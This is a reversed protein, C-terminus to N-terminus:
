VSGRPALTVSYGLQELRRVHHRELQAQELRDFYDPGLEQYPRKTKLVHYIIVLLSHAVAILARYVGRRRTLRRFQAGIYSTQSRANAWAIECLVAKLWANGRRTKGSLRKGGSQKNGPCVAAWSALHKASPFQRMDTGLEAVLTAAAVQKVGPITQLLQVAEEYPQLRHEIEGELQAIAAELFDMHALIQRLLVQHYAKLQGTLAQRLQPIKARMPGRALEAVVAVDQEGALLANLMERASKGLMSTAVSALKINAGELVKQLRNVEQTRQQVLAKRHRALERLERIPTPPIFSAQVLGHRLLDAIWESDKVDTKRGPVVKIHQPNVLVLTRTEDELLNYVPRWFVGTSEMAIQTVACESLWDSLALLDATMTGFTRVARQVHGNTSTLLVCAVVTKKHIDLGCCRAHVVQM